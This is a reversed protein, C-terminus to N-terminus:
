PRSDKIRPGTQGGGYREYLMGFPSPVVVVVAVVVVVVVVVTVM